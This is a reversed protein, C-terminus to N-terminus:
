MPLGGSHSSLSRTHVQELVAQTRTQWSAHQGAIGCPSAAGAGVHQRVTWEIGFENITFARLRSSVHAPFTM